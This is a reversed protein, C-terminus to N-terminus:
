LGPTVGAQGGALRNRAPDFPRSDPECVTGDEPLIGDLFYARIVALTCNSPDAFVSHGFGDGVVLASGGFAGKAGEANGVPTVPDLRNNVLLTATMNGQAPPILELLTDDPIQCDFTLTRGTGVGGQLIVNEVGSAGPVGPNTLVNGRSTGGAARSRITDLELPLSRPDTYDLPVELTTCELGALSTGNPPAVIKIMDECSGWELSPKSHRGTHDLKLQRDIPKPLAYSSALLCLLLPGFALM